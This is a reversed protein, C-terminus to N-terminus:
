VDNRHAFSSIGLTLHIRATGDERERAADRENEEERERERKRERPSYLPTEERV